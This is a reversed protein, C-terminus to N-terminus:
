QVFWTEQHRWSTIFSCKIEHYNSQSSQTSSWNWCWELNGCNFTEFKCNIWSRDTTHNTVRREFKYRTSKTISITDCYAIKDTAGLSRRHPKRFSFQEEIHGLWNWWETSFTINQRGDMESFLGKFNQNPVSSILVM